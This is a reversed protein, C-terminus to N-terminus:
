LIAELHVYKFSSDKNRADGTKEEEAVALNKPPSGGLHM